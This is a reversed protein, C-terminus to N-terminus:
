RRFAARLTALVERRRAARQENGEAAARQAEKGTPKGQHSPSASLNPLNRTFMARLEQRISRRLSPLAKEFGQAAEHVFAMDDHGLGLKAFDEGTVAGASHAKAVAEPNAGILVASLETQDQEWHICGCQATQEPTLGLEACAQGFDKEDRYRSRVRIPLFGVSVARLFGTAYMKWAFDALGSVGEPIFQVDEELASGVVRWGMVKGLLYGTTSYNHSDVFPANKQFRDFRWGQARVIERYCDIAQNSAIFRATRDKESLIRTEAPLTTRIPTTM